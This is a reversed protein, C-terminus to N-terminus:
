RTASRPRPPAPAGALLAAVRLRLTAARRLAEGCGGDGGCCGSSRRAAAVILRLRGAPTGSIAARLSLARRARAARLQDLSRGDDGASWRGGSAPAVRQLVRLEPASRDDRHRRRRGAAVGSRDGAVRGGRRAEAAVRYVGARRGTRRSSRATRPRAADRRRAAADRGPRGAVHRARRRDCRAAARLRRRARRRAM